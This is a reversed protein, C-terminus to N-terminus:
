FSARKYKEVPSLHTKYYKICNSEPLHETKITILKTNNRFHANFCISNDLRLTIM